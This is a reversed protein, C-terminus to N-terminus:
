GDDNGTGWPDPNDTDWPEPLPLQAADVLAHVDAAERARTLADLVQGAEEKTLAATTALPTARGALVATATLRQDRNQYGHRTLTAVIAKVQLPTAPPPGPQLIEIDPNEWGPPEPGPADSVVQAPPPAEQGAADTPPVAASTPQAPPTLTPPEPGVATPPPHSPRRAPTDTYGHEGPLPPPDAHKAPAPDPEPGLVTTPPKKRSRTPTQRQVTTAAPAPATGNSAEIDELEEVTSFGHIVDPFVLQCLESTARAQLMRRPYTSWASDPRILGAKKADDITWEVPPSWQDSGQRRGRVTCVASTSRDFMIDHGAAFVMARMIEASVGVKGHVVHTSQLTTMPGLGVERGYLIAAATGAVSQRLGKPVFDTDTIARALDIVDPLVSTWSDTDSNVLHEREPHQRPTVVAPLNETM